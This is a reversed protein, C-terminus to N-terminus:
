RVFYMKPDPTVVPRGDADVRFAMGIRRLHRRQSAFQRRGTVLAVEEPTLFFGSSEAQQSQKSVCLNAGGAETPTKFRNM